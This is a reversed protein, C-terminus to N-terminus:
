GLTKWGFFLAEGFRSRMFNVVDKLVSVDMCVLGFSYRQSERQAATESMELFVPKSPQPRREVTLLEFAGNRM